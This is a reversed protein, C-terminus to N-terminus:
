DRWGTGGCNTCKGNHNRCSYCNRNEKDNASSWLYGDGDFVYTYSRVLKQTGADEDSDIQRFPYKGSSLLAAYADLMEPTVEDAEFMWDCYSDKYAIKETASLGFFVEPDPIEGLTVTRKHERM